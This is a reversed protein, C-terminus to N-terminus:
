VKAYYFIAAKGPYMGYFRNGRKLAGTSVVADFFREFEERAFVKVFYERRMVEFFEKAAELTTRPTAWPFWVAHTDHIIRDRVLGIVLGIPMADHGPVPGVITWVANGSAELAEPLAEKFDALGMDSGFIPNLAEM